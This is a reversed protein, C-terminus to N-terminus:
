WFMYSVQPKQMNTAKEVNSTRGNYSIEFPQQIDNVPNATTVNVPTAEFTPASTQGATGNLQWNPITSKDAFAGIINSISNIVYANGTNAGAKYLGLIDLQGNPTVFNGLNSAVWQNALGADEILKKNAEFSEKQMNFKEINQRNILDQQNLALARDLSANQNQLIKDGLDKVNNINNDFSKLWSDPSVGANSVQRFQQREHIAM